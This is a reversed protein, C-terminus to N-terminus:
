RAVRVAFGSRESRNRWEARLGHLAAIRQV